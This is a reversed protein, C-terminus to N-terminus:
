KGGLFLKYTSLQLFFHHFFLVAPLWYYNQLRDFGMLLIAPGTVAVASIFSILVFELHYLNGLKDARPSTSSKWLFPSGEHSDSMGVNILFFNKIRNMAQSSECWAQRLRVIKLMYIWAVFNFVYCIGITIETQHKVKAMGEESYVVGVAAMAVGTALLFYNIMTHRDNMAQAMTERIYDYEHLAILRLRRAQKKDIGLPFVAPRSTAGKNGFMLLCILAVVYYLILYGVVFSQDFAQYRHSCAAAYVLIVIPAIIFFYFKSM